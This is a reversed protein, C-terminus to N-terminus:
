SVCIRKSFNCTIGNPTDNRKLAFWRADTLAVTMKTCGPNGGINM